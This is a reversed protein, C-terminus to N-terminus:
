TVVSGPPYIAVGTMTQNIHLGNYQEGYTSFGVVNHDALVQSVAGSQQKQEAEIRRLICDFGIITDPV